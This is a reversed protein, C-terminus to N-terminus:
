VDRVLWCVLTPNYNCQSLGLDMTGTIFRRGHAGAEPVADAPEEVRAPDAEVTDRWTLLSGRTSTTLQWYGGM